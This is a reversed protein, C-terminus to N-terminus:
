SVGAGTRTIRASFQSRVDASPCLVFSPVKVRAWEVGSFEQRLWGGLPEEDWASYRANGNVVSM